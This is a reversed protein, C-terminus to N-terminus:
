YGNRVAYKPEIFPDNVAVVNVQGHEVSCYRDASVGLCCPFSVCKPLGSTQTLSQKQSGPLPLIPLSERYSRNPRFWQHRGQYGHNLNEIEQDLTQNHPTLRPLAHDPLLPTISRVTHTTLTETRSSIIACCVSPQSILTRDPQATNLKKTPNSLYAAPPQLTYLAPPPAPCHHLLDLCLRTSYTRIISLTRVSCSQGIV